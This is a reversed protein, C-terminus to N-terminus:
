SNLEGGVKVGDNDINADRWERGMIGEGTGGWDRGEGGRM